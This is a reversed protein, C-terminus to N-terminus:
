ARGPVQQRRHLMMLCAAAPGACGKCCTGSPTGAGRPIGSPLCLVEATHQHQVKRLCPHLLLLLGLLHARPFATFTATPTCSASRTRSSRGHSRLHPDHRRQRPAPHTSPRPTARSSMMRCRGM